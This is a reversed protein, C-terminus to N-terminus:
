YELSALSLEPLEMNVEAITELPISEGDLYSLTISDSGLHTAINLLKDVADEDDIYTKEKLNQIDDHSEDIQVDILIQVNKPRKFFTFLSRKTKSKLENLTEDINFLFIDRSVFFSDFEGELKLDDQAQWITVEDEIMKRVEKETKKAVPIHAIKTGEPMKSAAFTSTPILM